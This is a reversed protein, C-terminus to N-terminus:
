WLAVGIGASLGVQFRSTDVLVQGEARYREGLMVVQASARAYVWAPLSPRVRLRGEVDAGLSPVVHRQAAVNLTASSPNITVLALGFAPGVLAEFRAGVFRARASAILPLVTGTVVVGSGEARLADLVAGALAVELWPRAAIGAALARM